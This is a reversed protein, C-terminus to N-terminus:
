FSFGADEFIFLRTETGSTKSCLQGTASPVVRPKCSTRAALSLWIRSRGGRRPSSSPHQIRAKQTQEQRLVSSTRLSQLAVLALSFPIKKQPCPMVQATNRWTGSAASIRLIHYKHTTKVLGRSSVSLVSAQTPVDTHIPLCMDSWSSRM